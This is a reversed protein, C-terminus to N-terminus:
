KKSNNALIMLDTQEKLWVLYNNFNDAIPSGNYLYVGMSNITVYGLDIVKYGIRIHEFRSKDELIDKIREGEAKGADRECAEYLAEEVQWATLGATGIGLYRALVLQNEYTLDSIKNQLINILKKRGIREKAQKEPEDIYWANPNGSNLADQYSQFIYPHHKMWAWNIADIPNALDLYVVGILKKETFEDVVLPIKEKQSQSLPPQGTILGMDSYTPRITMPIMTANRKKNICKLVIIRDETPVRYGEVEINPVYRKSASQVPEEKVVSTDLVGANVPETETKITNKPYRSM